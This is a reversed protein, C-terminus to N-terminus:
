RRVDDVSAIEYGAGRLAAEHDIRGRFSGDLELWSGVEGDERAGFLFTEPGTRLANVGSVVVFDFGDLPESLKYLRADGQWGTLKQVFTATKETM